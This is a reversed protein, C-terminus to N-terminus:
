VMGRGVPDPMLIGSGLDKKGGGTGIWYGGTEPRGPMVQQKEAWGHEGPM